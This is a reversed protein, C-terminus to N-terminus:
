LREFDGYTSALTLGTAATDTTKETIAAAVSVSPALKNAVAAAVITECDAREAEYFRHEDCPSICTAEM